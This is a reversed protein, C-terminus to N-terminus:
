FPLNDFPAEIIRSEIEKVKEALELITERNLYVKFYKGDDGSSVFMTAYNVRAAHPCIEGQKKDKELPNIYYEIIVDVNGGLYEKEM